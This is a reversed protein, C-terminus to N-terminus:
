SASLRSVTARFVLEQPAGRSVHAVSDGSAYDIPRIDNFTHSYILHWPHTNKREMFRHSTTLSTYCRRIDSADISVIQATTDYRPQLEKALDLLLLGLIAFLVDRPLGILQM